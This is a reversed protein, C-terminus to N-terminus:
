SVEQIFKKVVFDAESKLKKVASKKMSDISSFNEKTLKEKTKTIKEKIKHIEKERFDNDQKDADSMLFISKERSEEIIKLKKKEAEELKKKASEEAEKIRVLTNESLISM